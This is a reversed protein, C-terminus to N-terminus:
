VKRERAFRIERNRTLLYDVGPVGHLELRTCNSQLMTQFAAAGDPGINNDGLDHWLRATGRWHLPFTAVVM